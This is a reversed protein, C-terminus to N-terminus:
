EGRHLVSGCIKIGANVDGIASFGVHREFGYRVNSKAAGLADGTHCVAGVGQSGNLCPRENQTSQSVSGKERRFTDSSNSM